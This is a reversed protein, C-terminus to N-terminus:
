MPRKGAARDHPRGPGPLIAPHWLGTAPNIMNTQLPRDAPQQRRLAPRVGRRQRHLGAIGAAEMGEESAVRQDERQLQQLGSGVDRARRQPRQGGPLAAGGIRLDVLFGALDQVFPTRHRRLPQDIHAPRHPVAGQAVVARRVGGGPEQDQEGGGAVGVQLGLQGGADGRRAVPEFAGQDGAPSQHTAARPPMRAPQGLLAPPVAAVRSRVAVGAADDADVAPGRAGRHGVRVRLRRGDSREGCQGDEFRCSGRVPGLPPRLQSSPQAGVEPGLHHGQVGRVDRDGAGSGLEAPQQPGAREVFRGRRRGRVPQQAGIHEGREAHPRQRRVM